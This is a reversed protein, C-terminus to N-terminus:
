FWIRFCHFSSCTGWTRSDREPRSSIRRFSRRRGRNALNHPYHLAGSLASVLVKPSLGRAAREGSHADSEQKPAFPDTCIRRSARERLFCDTDGNRARISIPRAGQKVLLHRRQRASEWRKPSAIKLQRKQLYRWISPRTRPVASRHDSLGSEVFQITETEPMVRRLSGKTTHRSKWPQRHM